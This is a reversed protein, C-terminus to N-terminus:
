RLQNKKLFKEVSPLINQTMLRVGDANPHVGDGLVKDSTPLPSGPQLRFIGDMFFPYLVLNNKSALEKYMKFFNRRYAKPRTPPAEMGILMVPIQNEKLTTIIFQLNARIDILPRGQIADNVGLELLVADPQSELLSDLREVGGQATEGTKSANYVLVHYGKVTLAEQLRTYFADSEPLGHGAALSDGFVALRFSEQPAAAVALSVCIIVLCVILRM